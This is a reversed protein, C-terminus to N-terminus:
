AFIRHWIGASKPKPPAYTRKQQVLQLRLIAKILGFHAQENRELVGSVGPQWLNLIEKGSVAPTLIFLHARELRSVLSKLLQEDPEYGLSARGGLIILERTSNRGMGFQNEFTEYSLAQIEVRQAYQNQKNLAQVLSGALTQDDELLLLRYSTNM